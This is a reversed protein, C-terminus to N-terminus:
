LMREEHKLEELKDELEMFAKFYIDSIMSLIEDATSEDYTHSTLNRSKIMQMWAEGDEVIGLSFAARAADRSGYIDTNGRSELFDKLTKWGLEHVYEFAQIVGQKELNSLSREEKLEMASQLQRLAKQYNSFRQVWRVDSESM